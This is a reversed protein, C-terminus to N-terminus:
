EVSWLKLKRNGLGEVEGVQKVPIGDRRMATIHWGARKLSEVSDDGWLELSVDRTTAPANLLMAMINSRITM